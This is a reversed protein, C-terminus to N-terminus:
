ADNTPEKLIHRIQCPVCCMEFTWRYPGGGITGNIFDTCRVEANLSIWCLEPLIELVRAIRPDTM